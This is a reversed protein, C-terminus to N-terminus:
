RSKCIDPIGPLVSGFISAPLKSGNQQNTAEKKLNANWTDFASRTDKACQIDKADFLANLNITTVTPTPGPCRDTLDPSDDDVETQFHRRHWLRRDRTRSNYFYRSVGVIILLIALTAILASMMKNTIVGRRNYYVLIAMVLVAIFFIQLFFLTDLKNRYHYENIEFQRKTLDNDYAVSNLKQQNYSNIFGKTSLLDNNRILNSAANIHTDFVNKTHLVVSQMSNDKRGVQGNVYSNIQNELFKKCSETNIGGGCAAEYSDGAAGQANMTNSQFGEPYGRM